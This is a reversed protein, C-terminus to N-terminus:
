QLRMANRARMEVAERAAQGKKPLDKITKIEQETFNILVIYRSM